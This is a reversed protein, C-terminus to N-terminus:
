LAIVAVKKWLWFCCCSRLNRLLSVRLSFIMVTSPPFSPFSFLSLFLFSGFFVNIYAILIVWLSSSIIFLYFLFLFFPSSLFSALPCGRCRYAYLPHGNFYINFVSSWGKKSYWWKREPVLNNMNIIIIIIIYETPPPDRQHMSCRSRQIWGEM